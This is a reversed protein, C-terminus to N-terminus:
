DLIVRQLSEVAFVEWHSRGDDYIRIHDPFATVEAIPERGREAALNDLYVKFESATYTKLITLLGESLELGAAWHTVPPQGDSSLPVQFTEAGGSDPDLVRTIDRANAVFADEVIFIVKQM